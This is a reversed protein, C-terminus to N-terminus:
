IQVLFPVMNPLVGVNETLWGTPTCVTSSVTVSSWPAVLVSVTTTVTTALSVLTMMSLKAAVGVKIVAPSDVVRLQSVVPASLTDILPPALRSGSPLMETLGVVLM